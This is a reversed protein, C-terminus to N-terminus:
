LLTLLLPALPDGQKLGIQMSFAHSPNKGMHVKGYTKNV